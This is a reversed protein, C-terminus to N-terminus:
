VEFSEFYPVNDGNVYSAIWQTRISKNEDLNFTVFKLIKLKFKFFNLFILIKGLVVNNQKPVTESLKTVKIPNHSNGLFFVNNFWSFGAKKSFLALQM